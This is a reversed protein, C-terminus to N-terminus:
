ADCYKFRRGPFNAAREGWAFTRTDLSEETIGHSSHPHIFSFMELAASCDPAQAFSAEHCFPRSGCTGVWPLVASCLLNNSFIFDYFRCGGISVFFAVEWFLWSWFGHRPVTNFYSELCLSRMEFCGHIFDSYFDDMSFTWHSNRKNRGKSM